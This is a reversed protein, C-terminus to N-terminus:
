VQTIDEYAAQRDRIEFPAADLAWEQIRIMEGARREVAAALVQGEGAGLQGVQLADEGEAGDASAASGADSSQMGVGDAIGGDVDDGGAAVGHGDIRGVVRGLDEEVVDEDAVPLEDIRVSRRSVVGAAIWEDMQAGNGLPSWGARVDGRIQGVREIVTVGSHAADVGAGDIAALRQGRGEGGSPNLAARCAEVGIEDDPALAIGAGAGSAPPVRVIARLLHRLHDAKVLM